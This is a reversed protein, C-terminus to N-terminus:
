HVRCTNRRSRGCGTASCPTARRSATSARAHVTFCHDLDDAVAMRGGDHGSFGITLLGRHKAETIATM